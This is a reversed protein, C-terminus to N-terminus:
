GHFVQIILYEEFDDYECRGTSRWGPIEDILRMLNHQLGINVISRVEERIHWFERFELMILKWKVRM